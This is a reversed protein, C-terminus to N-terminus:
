SGRRAALALPRHTFNDGLLRSKGHEGGHMLTSASPIASRLANNAFPRHCQWLPHLSLGSVSINCTSM